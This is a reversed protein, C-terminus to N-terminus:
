DTSPVLLLDGHSENVLRVAVSGLLTAALESQRNSGLVLLDAKIESAYQNVLAPAYGHRVRGIFREPEDLSLIFADMQRRAENQGLRRYHDVAEDDSGAYYLEREFPVEYAHLVYLEADALLRAALNAAARSAPSFDTAVLIREYAFLPTQKALLVPQGALRLLKLATSGVFLDLLLHEGHAGVVVLDAAAERAWNAITQAPKGSLIHTQPTVGTRRVLEEAFQAMRAAARERLRSESFGEGEILNRWAGALPPLNIAHLVDLRAGDAKALLAARHIAAEASRSFDTAAVIREVKM